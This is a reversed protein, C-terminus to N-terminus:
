YSIGVVVVAAAPVAAAAAARGDRLWLTPSVSELSVEHCGPRQWGVQGRGPRVQWTGNRALVNVLSSGVSWSCREAICQGRSREDIRGSEIAVGRKVQGRARGATLRCSGVVFVVGYKRKGRRVVFQRVGRGRSGSRKERMREFFYGSVGVVRTKTERLDQQVRAEALM